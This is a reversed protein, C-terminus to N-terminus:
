TPGQNSKVEVEVYSKDIQVWRILEDNEDWRILEDNEEIVERLQNWHIYRDPVVIPWWASWPWDKGLHKCLFTFKFLNDGPYQMIM